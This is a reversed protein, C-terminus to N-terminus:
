YTGWGGVFRPWACGRWGAGRFNKWNIECDIEFGNINLDRLEQFSIYGWETNVYDNNLIVFGFFTALLMMISWMWINEFGEIGYEKLTEKFKSM